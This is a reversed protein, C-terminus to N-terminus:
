RLRLEWIHVRAQDHSNPDLVEVRLVQVEIPEPLDFSLEPQSQSGQGEFRHITPEVGVEPYCKLTIQVRASGIIISFGNLKRIKPFTLEIVFPNTEFTKALTFRDNDFVLAMSKDQFDSDLYSYRVKVQQGDITLTSERLAERTAKEAAFVEDVNDVYSLRVFYFGPNGDPYPVTTEVVIDTFKPHQKIIQYEDPTMIFLTNRDLPLKEILYGRVSGIQISSFDDLFFRAVTDTGNAWDPSFIIKTDPHERKYEDIINFIQFAGYQLGGLGYDRFWLPGNRLADNLMRVNTAALATFIALAIVSSSLNWLKAKVPVDGRVLSQALRQVVGSIQLALIIVLMLLALGNTTREFRSAAFFGIVLLILAVA